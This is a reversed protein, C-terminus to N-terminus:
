SRGLRREGLRDRLAEISDFVAVADARACSRPRRLARAQLAAVPTVGGPHSRFWRKRGRLGLREVWALRVDAAEAALERRFDPQKAAM